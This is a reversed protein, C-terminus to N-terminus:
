REELGFIDASPMILGLRSGEALALDIMRGYEEKNAERSSIPYLFKRGGTIHVEELPLVEFKFRMKHFGRNEGVERDLIDCLMHFYRAQPTTHDKKTIKVNQGDLPMSMLYQVLHLRVKDNSLTWSLYTM